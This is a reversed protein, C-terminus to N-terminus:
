IFEGLLSATAIPLCTLMFGFIAFPWNLIGKEILLRTIWTAWSLLFLIIGGDLILSLIKFLGIYDLSGALDEKNQWLTERNLDSSIKGNPNVIAPVLSWNVGAYKLKGSIKWKGGKKSNINKALRM